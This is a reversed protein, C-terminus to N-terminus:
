VGWELVSVPVVPMRHLRLALRDPQACSANPLSLLHFGYMQFATSSAALQAGGICFDFTSAGPSLVPVTALTLPGDILVGDVYRTYSNNPGDMYLTISHDNANWAADVTTSSGFVTTSNVNDYFNVAWNGGATTVFKFGGESTGNANGMFNAAAPTVRGRFHLLLSDRQTTNWTWRSSLSAKAITVKQSATSPQTLRNATAWATGAPLSNFAGTVGQGSRDTLSTDSAAQFCPYFAVYGTSM